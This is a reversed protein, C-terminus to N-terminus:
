LVLLSMWRGFFGTVMLIGVIILMGGALANIIRYHKKIFSFTGKLQNILLASIIFPIGLGMSFVFLMFMGELMGGLMAARLLAAGLFAGVCPTWAISFVMGFLFAASFNLVKGGAGIGAWKSVGTWNLRLYKAFPMFNLRLLGLYNLGFAVVILGTVINVQTSYSQLLWGISGAFAGLVIFVVTFGMVFGIANIFIKRRDETEDAGALYSIYIPLLPLFCPSIFTIIGELFLLLYQM